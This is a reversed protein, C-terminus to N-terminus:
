CSMGARLERHRDGFEAQSRLPHVLASEVTHTGDPHRAIVVELAEGPGPVPLEESSDLVVIGNAM